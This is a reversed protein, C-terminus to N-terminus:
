KSTIQIRGVPALKFPPAGVLHQGPKTMVIPLLPRDIVAGHVRQDPTYRIRDSNRACYLVHVRAMAPCGLRLFGDDPKGSMAFRASCVEVRRALVADHRM